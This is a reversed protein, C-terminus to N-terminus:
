KLEQKRKINLEDTGSQTLDDGPMIDVDLKGSTTKVDSEKGSVSNFEKVDPM